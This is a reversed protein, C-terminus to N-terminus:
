LLLAPLLLRQLDYKPEYLLFTPPTLVEMQHTETLRKMDVSKSFMVSSPSLYKIQNSPLSTM